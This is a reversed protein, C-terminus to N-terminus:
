KIAIAGIFMFNRWFVQVDKFGANYMFQKLEDYTNPKLMHRLTKEKELINDEKLRTQMITTDPTFGSRLGRSVRIVKFGQKIEIETLNKEDLLKSLRDILEEDVFIRSM